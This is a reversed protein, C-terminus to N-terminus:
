GLEGRLNNQGACGLLCSRFPDKQTARSVDPTEPPCSRRTILLRDNRSNIACLLNHLRHLTPPADTARLPHREPPALARTSPLGNNVSLVRRCQICYIRKCITPTREWKPDYTKPVVPQVLYGLSSAQQPSVIHLPVTELIIRSSTGLSSV